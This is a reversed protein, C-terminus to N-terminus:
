IHGGLDVVNMAQGSWREAVVVFGPEAAADTEVHQGPFPGASHATVVVAIPNNCGIDFGFGPGQVVGESVVPIDAPHSGSGPSV